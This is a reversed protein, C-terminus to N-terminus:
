RNILMKRCFVLHDSLKEAIRSKGSFWAINVVKVWIQWCLNIGGVPLYLKNTNDTHGWGEAPGCILFHFVSQVSIWPNTKERIWKKIINRWHYKSKPKSKAPNALAPASGKTHIISLHVLYFTILHKESFPLTVLVRSDVFIWFYIWFILRFYDTIISGHDIPSM